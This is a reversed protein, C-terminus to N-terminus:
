QCMIPDIEFQPCAEFDILSTRGTLGCCKGCKAWKVCTVPGRCLEPSAASYWKCGACTPEHRKRSAKGRFLLDLDEDTYPVGTGYDFIESM